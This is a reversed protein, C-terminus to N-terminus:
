SPPLMDINCTVCQPGPCGLNEASSVCFLPVPTRVARSVHQFSLVWAIPNLFPLLLFSYIALARVEDGISQNLQRHVGRSMPETGQKPSNCALNSRGQSESPFQDLWIHIQGCLLVGRSHNQVLWFSMPETKLPKLQEDLPQFVPM